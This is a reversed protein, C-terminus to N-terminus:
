TEGRMAKAPSGPRAGVEVVEGAFPLHVFLGQCPKKLARTLIEAYARLQGFVAVTQLAVREPTGLFAKHEVVAFGTDTEIVLDCTGRLETGSALQMRVPWERHWRGSPWRATAWRHLNDFAVVADAPAVADTFGTAGLISAATTERAIRGRTISDSAFVDHLATGLLDAELDERTPLADGIRVRQLEAGADVVESPSAFAPVHEAKEVIPCYLGARPQSEDRPRASAERVVIDFQRRGWSARLMPERVLPVGKSSLLGLIGSSLKDARAALVLRDRARTWAVYLLRLEQARARAASAAASASTGVADVFPGATQQELLPSPWFRLWRDKLVDKFDFGEARPEVHIGLPSGENVFELDFLVVIPWELGKSGHWTLVHVADDSAPTGVFDEEDSELRRLHELFGLLSATLRETAVYRTAEQRVGELNARRQATSGWSAVLEDLGLVVRLRDVAAVVGLLPTTERATRVAVVVAHAAFADVDSSVAFLADGFAAGTPDADTVRAIEAAALTDRPAAFLKLGAVLLRCEPARLLGPRSTASLVGQAALADAVARCGRNTRCLIAVDRPQVQRVAKTEQDRVCTKPDALMRRTVAALAGVAEDNNKANVRWREAIPGLARDDKEEAPSLVVQERPTGGAEFPPAFVSSTVHVLEPRSRWSKGLMEPRQGGLVQDVAAQMLAPDTSRFGYIAQKMDGVWVSRRALEALRQFLAVQLPSSDQFEDVVVLDIEGALADRVEPRSLAELAREEQDVFDVFGRRAKELRYRASARAAVTFCREVAMTLDARLAASSPFRAALARIPEALARAKAGPALTALRSWMSWPLDSGRHLVSRAARVAELSTATAITDDVLCESEFTALARALGDIDLPQAPEPLVAMLGHISRAMSSTLGTEDIGNARALEALRAVNGMWDFAPMRQRLEDLARAEDGALVASVSARFLSSAEAEDLVEQTPPLGLDLAFESVLKGCVANVTGVRAFTLRRAEELLGSGILRGRIRRVLEDAARNTFTVAVVAEARVRGAKVDAEVLDAIRHTKGSGASASVIEITM